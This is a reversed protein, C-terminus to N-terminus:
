FTGFYERHEWQTVEGPEVPGAKALWEAFRASESRKLRVLCETLPAGLLERCLASDALATVAEDLDRPVARADPAHPDTAPAGPRLGREVGDLGAALQAALYLYPNACPEGLRNEVHTAPEGPAGLVRVMAGRNEPSWVVRDPSLSYREALRRYGNVTPVCLASVARAHELLGGVYAAGTESLPSAGDEATFANRLEGGPAAERFLSQHLHWGSPDFGAIGPLAMFSAHHGQRAAVQKAVTRFLLMADAAALGEMPDFTFEVQGPGAEHEVSRLPLGLARVTRALPTLVPMLADTLGDLNFQYGGDVVEVAPADGQVGFGGVGAPGASASLRTLYWEVELGVVFSWGGARARDLVRRLVARSSLPHPTGDRLYEDGVVWGTRAETYPLERFTLPDPVVLFDGAGTLEPIGIGGGEAFFDVAVAHGTDFVYPGQSMDMGNRLVTRFADVTLTKSRFLGHPDGFGVRVFELGDLLGELREAAARQDDNWLGHRAVFGTSGTAIRPLGRLPDAVPPPNHTM